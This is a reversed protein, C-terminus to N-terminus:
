SSNKKKIKKKLETILTINIFTLCNSNFYTSPLGFNLSLWILNIFYMYVHPSMKFQLFHIVNKKKM